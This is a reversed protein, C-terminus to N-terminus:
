SKTVHPPPQYLNARVRRWGLGLLEIDLERRLRKRRGELTQKVASRRPLIKGMRVYV